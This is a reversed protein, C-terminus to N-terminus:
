FQEDDAGNSDILKSQQWTVCIQTGLGPTSDITLYARILMAREVIGVIGFRKQALLEALDPQRGIQFGVGDDRINLEIREPQFDGRIQINDARSHQLANLCAQQTIRFLHLEVAEPYRYDDGSLDLMVQAPQDRYLPNEQIEEVLDELALGLGYNLTGSRLNSIMGRIEAVAEQYARWLRDWSEPDAGAELRPAELAFVAMKNLLDDHLERALLGREAEQRLIDTQLFDRLRTALDIHVLALATQDMLAQFLQIESPAYSDDPDRWGFLCIGLPKGDVALSVALRVWALRGTEGGQKGSPVVNGAIALLAPLDSALPMQRSSVQVQVIPTILCSQPQNPDGQWRLLVAQRVLLDPFVQTTLLEALRSIDLSEALRASYWPLLGAPPVPIGLFRHEFWAEFRSYRTVGASTALILIITGIVALYGSDESIISFLSIILTSILFVVTVFVVQSIIRQTRFQMGGVQRTYLIYLYTLPLTVLAVLGIDTLWPIGRTSGLLIFPILIMLIFPFVWLSLSAQRRLDPHLILNVLLIGLSVIVTAAIAVLFLSQPLLQFLEALVFGGCILYLLWFVRRDLRALPRPFLWHFHLSVALLIWSTMRLLTNSYFLRSYSVTGYIIWVGIVFYLTSMMGSRADRPAILLVSFLGFAWFIYALYWYHLFRNFFEAWTFGPIQWDVTVTRGDRVVTFPVVEGSKVAPFTPLTPQATREAWNIDGISQIVDGVQLSDKAIPQVFLGTIRASYVEISFGLYPVKILYVWTFLVIVLLCAIAVSLSLHVDPNQFRKILKM